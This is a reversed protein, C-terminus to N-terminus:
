DWELLKSKCRIRLIFPRTGFFSMLKKRVSKANRPVLADNWCPFIPLWTKPVQDMRKRNKKQLTFNQFSFNLWLLLLKFTNLLLIRIRSDFDSDRIIIEVRPCLKRSILYFVFPSLSSFLDLFFDLNFFIIICLLLFLINVPLLYSSNREMLLQELKASPSVQM